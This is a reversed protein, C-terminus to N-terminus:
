ARRLRNMQMIFTVNNQDMGEPSTHILAPTGGAWEVVLTKAKLGKIAQLLFGLNYAGQGSAGPDASLVSVALDGMWAQEEWCVDIAPEGRIPRREKGTSLILRPGSSPGFLDFAIMGDKAVHAAAETLAVELAKRDVTMRIRPAPTLFRYTDVKKAAVTGGCDVEVNWRGVDHVMVAHRDMHQDDEADPIVVREIVVARKARASAALLGSLRGVMVGPIMVEFGEDGVHPMSQHVLRYGDIAGAVLQGGSVSLAVQQLPLTVPNGPSCAHRTYALIQAFRATDEIRIGGKYVALGDMVSFINNQVVPIWSEIGGGALGLAGRDGFHEWDYDFTVLAGLPASKCFAILDDLMVNIYPQTRLDESFIQAGSSLAVAGSALRYEAFKLIAASENVMELRVRRGTGIIAKVHRLHAAFEKVLM